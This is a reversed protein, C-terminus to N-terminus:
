SMGSQLLLPGERCNEEESGIRESYLDPLLPGPGAGGTGREPGNEQEFLVNEPRSLHFCSLLCRILFFLIFRAMPNVLHRLIEPDRKQRQIGTKYDSEIEFIQLKFNKNCNRM